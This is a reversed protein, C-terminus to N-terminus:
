LKFDLARAARPQEESDLSKKSMEDTGAPTSDWEHLQRRWKRIQGDWSRKSCKQTKEPTKLMGKKRSNKPVQAIYNKYGETNYGYDIQKQRQELRHQDTEKEKNDVSNTKSRNSNRNPPTTIVPSNPTSYVLDLLDFHTDRPITTVSPVFHVPNSFPATHHQTHNHQHHPHPHPHPHGFSNMPASNCGCSPCHAIHHYVIVQTTNQANIPHSHNKTQFATSKPRPKEKNGNVVNEDNRVTVNKNTPRYRKEGSLVRSNASKESLSALPARVAKKEENKIPKRKAIGEAKPAPSVIFSRISPDLESKLHSYKLLFERPHQISAKTNLQESPLVCVTETSM